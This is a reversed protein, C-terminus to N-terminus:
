RTENQVGPEGSPTRLLRGQIDTTWEDTKLYRPSRENTKGFKQM